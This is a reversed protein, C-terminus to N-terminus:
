INVAKKVELITEQAAAKAKTCGEELIEMIEKKTKLLESRKEQIPELFKTLIMGLKKKCDTCGIQAKRCAEEVEKKMDPAFISYYAHVNCKEPHGADSVKIREPDTFMGQVKKCIVEPGDSLAIFNNYSKSMKRGDLGLLRKEKTM